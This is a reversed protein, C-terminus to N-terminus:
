VHLHRISDLISQTNDTAITASEKEQTSLPSEHHEPSSQETNGFLEKKKSSWTCM